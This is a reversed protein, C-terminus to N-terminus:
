AIYSQKYKDRERTLMEIESDKSRVMTRLSQLERDDPAQPNAVPQFLRQKAKYKARMKALHNAYAKTEKYKKSKRYSKEKKRKALREPTDRKKRTKPM